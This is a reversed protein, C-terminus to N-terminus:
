IESRRNIIASHPNGIAEEIIALQWDAIPL